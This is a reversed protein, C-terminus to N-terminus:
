HGAPRHPFRDPIKRLALGVLTGLGSPVLGYFVDFRDVSYPGWHNTILVVAPLCLGLLGTWRWAWKPRWSAFIVGFTFLLVIYPWRTSSQLDILASAMGFALGAVWTPRDSLLTLVFEDISM